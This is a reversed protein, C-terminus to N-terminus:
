APSDLIPRSRTLNHCLKDKVSHGLTRLYILQTKSLQSSHFAAQHRPVFPSRRQAPAEKGPLAEITGPPPFDIRLVGYLAGPADWSRPLTSSSMNADILCM